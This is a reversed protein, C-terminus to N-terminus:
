TEGLKQLRMEIARVSRGHRKAISELPEGERHAEQVEGEEEPTWAAFAKRHRKRAREITEQREDDSARQLRRPAEEENPTEADALTSSRGKRPEIPALARHLGEFFSRLEEADNVSLACLEEGDEEQRIVLRGASSDAEFVFSRDESTRVTVQRKERIETM